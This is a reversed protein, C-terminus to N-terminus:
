ARPDLLFVGITRETREQYRGYGPYAEVIRPWLRAREAPSAPRATMPTLTRGRRVVVEPQAELNLSWAPPRDSGGASAVLVLSRGEALYTLPTTRLRGTRRGTTTLLLVPLGVVRGGVRGGSARYVAHHLAIVTLTIRRRLGPRALDLM